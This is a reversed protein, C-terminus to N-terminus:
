CRKKERNEVNIEFRSNILDQYTRIGGWRHESRIPISIIKDIAEKEKDTKALNVLVKVL